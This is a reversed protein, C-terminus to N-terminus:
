PVTLPEEYMPISGYIVHPTMDAFPNNLGDFLNIRSCVSVLLVPDCRM